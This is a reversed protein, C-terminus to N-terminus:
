LSGRTLLLPSRSDHMRRGAEYVPLCHSIELWRRKEGKILVNHYLFNILGYLQFRKEDPIYSLQLHNSWHNRQHARTSPLLCAAQRWYRWSSPNLWNGFANWRFNSQYHSWNRKNKVIMSFTEFLATSIRWSLTTAEAPVKCKTQTLAPEKQKDGSWRGVLVSVQDKNSIM